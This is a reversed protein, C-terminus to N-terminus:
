EAGKVFPHLLRRPYCFTAKEEDWWRPIKAERVLATGIIRFDPALGDMLVYPQDLDQQRPYIALYGNTHRTWRVEHRSSDPARLGTLGRWYKDLFKNFAEEACSSEIEDDWVPQYPQNFRSRNGNMQQIRRHIAHYGAFRVEDLTLSPLTIYDSEQLEM